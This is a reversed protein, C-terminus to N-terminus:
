QKIVKKTIILGNDEIRVFYVGNARGYLDFTLQYGNGTTQQLVKGNIDTLMVKAKELKKSFTIFFTGTTPNPYLADIQQFDETTGEEQKVAKTPYPQGNNCFYVRRLRNGSADYTNVIGCTGLPLQQCFAAFTCAIVVATLFFKKKM